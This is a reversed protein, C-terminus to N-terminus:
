TGSVQLYELKLDLADQLIGCAKEQQATVTYYRSQFYMFFVGALTLTLNRHDASLCIINIYSWKDM